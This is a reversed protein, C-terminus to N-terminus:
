ELGLLQKELKSAEEPPLADTVERKYKTRWM